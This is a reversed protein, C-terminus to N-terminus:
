PLAGRANPPMTLLVSGQNIHSDNAAAHNKAAPSRLDDGRDIHGIFQFSLFGPTSAFLAQGM